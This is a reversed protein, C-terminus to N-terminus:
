VGDSEEGRGGSRQQRAAEGDTHGAGVSALARAERRRRLMKRVPWAFVFIAATVMALILGWLAGLLSLGAGPGVYANAAMPLLCLVGGTVIGKSPGRLVTAISTRWLAIMGLGSIEDVVGARRWQCRTVTMGSRPSKSFSGRLNSM